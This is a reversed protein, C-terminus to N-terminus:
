WTWRRPEERATAPVARREPNIPSDEWRVWGGDDPRRRPEEPKHEQRLAERYQARRYAWGPALWLIFRELWGTPKM